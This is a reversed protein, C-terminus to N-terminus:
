FSQRKPEKYKILEGLPHKGHRKEWLYDIHLFPLFFITLNEVEM